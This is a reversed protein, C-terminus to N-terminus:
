SMGNQIRGDDSCMRRMRNVELIISKKKIFCELLCFIDSHVGM